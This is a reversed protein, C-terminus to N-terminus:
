NMELHFSILEDIPKMLIRGLQLSFSNLSQKLEKQYHFAISGIFNIVPDNTDYCPTIQKELYNEFIPVLMRLREKAGWHRLQPAFSAIFENPRKHSYIENLLNKTSTYHSEFITSQDSTLTGRMYQKILEKGIIFGSGEDGLLYGGSISKRTVKNGDFYCANSGTGLIGVNGPEKKCVAKAAGDLDSAVFVQAGTFSNQLAQQVKSILLENSCGAGYFYVQDVLAAEKQFHTSSIRLIEAHLNNIILPNLGNSQHSLNLNKDRNMLYWDAKSSGSEIIAIV